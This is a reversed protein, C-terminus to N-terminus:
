GTHLYTLQLCPQTDIVLSRQICLCDIVGARWVFDNGKNVLWQELIEPKNGHQLFIFFHGKTPGGKQPAGTRGFMSFMGLDAETTSLFLCSTNWGIQWDRCDYCLPKKAADCITPVLSTWYNAASLWGIWGGVNLSLVNNAVRVTCHQCSVLSLTQRYTELSIFFFLIFPHM